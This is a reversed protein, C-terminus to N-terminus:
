VIEEEIDDIEKDLRLLPLANDQVNHSKNV